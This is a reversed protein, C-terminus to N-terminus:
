CKWQKERESLQRGFEMRDSERAEQVLRVAEAGKNRSWFVVAMAGLIIGALLGLLLSTWVMGSLYAPKSTLLRKTKLGSDQTQSPFVVSVSACNGLM